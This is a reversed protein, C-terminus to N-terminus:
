KKKLERMTRRGEIIGLLIIASVALLTSIIAYVLYKGLDGYSAFQPITPLWHTIFTNWSLAAVLSLASVLVTVSTTLVNSTVIVVRQLQLQALEQAQETTFGRLTLGHKENDEKDTDVVPSPTSSSQDSM